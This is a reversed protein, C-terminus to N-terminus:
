IGGVKDIYQLREDLICLIYDKTLYKVMYWFAREGPRLESFRARGGNYIQWSRWIKLASDYEEFENRILGHCHWYGSHFQELFFIYSVSRLEAYTVQNLWARIKSQAGYITKVPYKFTLTVFLSWNYRKIFDVWATKLGIM